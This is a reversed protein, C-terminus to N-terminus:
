AAPALRSLPSGDAEAQHQAATEESSRRPVTQGRHSDDATDNLVKAIASITSWNRMTAPVGFVRDLKKLYNIDKM